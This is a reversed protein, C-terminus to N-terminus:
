FGSCEKRLTDRVNTQKKNLTLQVKTWYVRLVGVGHSSSAGYLFHSQTGFSETSRDRWGSLPHDTPLYACPGIAGPLMQAITDYRAVPFVSAGVWKPLM